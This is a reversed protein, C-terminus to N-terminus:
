EHRGRKENPHIASLTADHEAEYKKKNGTLILDKSDSNEELQDFQLKIRKNKGSAKEKEQSKIHANLRETVAAILQYQYLLDYIAQYENDAAIKIPLGEESPILPDAGHQLLVRVAQTHGCFVAAALPTTERSTNKRDIGTNIDAGAALLVRIVDVHGYEAAHTLATQVFGSRSAQVNAGIKLFFSVKQVNGQAAALMMLRDLREQPSHHAAYPRGKKQAKTVIYPITANRDEAEESPREPFQTPIKFFTPSNAGFDSRPTSIRSCIEDAAQTDTLALLGLGLFVFFLM